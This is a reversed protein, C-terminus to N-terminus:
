ASVEHLLVQIASFRLRVKAADGTGQSLAQEFNDNEEFRKGFRELLAEKRAELRQLEDDTCGDFGVAWIEFLAKNVPAKRGARMPKRFAQDGLIRTAADMARVFRRALEGRAGEGQTNIAKMTGHLFTDLDGHPPYQAPPTLVFACFRLVCERDTMRHDSFKGQTAALFAESAALMRLFDRVPGPNMAHRIEQSTLPEGGTNLRKFINLKAEDPTGKDILYVTLMTEEIRRQLPRSLGSFDRGELETLYELGHLTLDRDLVFRKLATLRQIGDVVVLCDENSGDFYFAPLPIRILLSEVLQSQAKDKWIGAERQFDPALDIEGQSLRKLVLDITPTWLKVRIRNPDFPKSIRGASTDEEEIKIDPSVSPLDNETASEDEEDPLPGAGETDDVVKKFQDQVSRFLRLVGAEDLKTEAGKRTLRWMGRQSGHMLDARKLYFRAWGIQNRVRSQGSTTTEALEEASLGLREIVRDTVESATGTGGLEKLTELVPAVFRLFVPGKQKKAMTM